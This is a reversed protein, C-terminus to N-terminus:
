IIFLTIHNGNNGTLAYKNQVTKHYLIKKKRLFIGLISKTPSTASLFLQNKPILLM